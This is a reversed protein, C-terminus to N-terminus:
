AATAVPLPSAASPATGILRAYEAEAIGYFGNADVHLQKRDVIKILTRTSRISGRGELAHMATTV